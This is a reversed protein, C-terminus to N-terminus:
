KNKRGMQSQNVWNSPHFCSTRLQKFRGQDCGGLSSVIKIKLVFFVHLKGRLNREFDVLEMLKKPHYFRGAVGGEMVMVPQAKQSALKKSSTADYFLVVDSGEEPFQQSSTTESPKKLLFRCSFSPQVINSQTKSALYPLTMEGSALDSITRLLKGSHTHSPKNTLRHSSKAPQSFSRVALNDLRYSRPVHNPECCQVLSPRKLAENSTFWDYYLHFFRLFQVSANM